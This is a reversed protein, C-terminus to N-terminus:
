INHKHQTNPGQRLGRLANAYMKYIVSKCLHIICMKEHPKDDVFSGGGLGIFDVLFRVTVLRANTGPRSPFFRLYKSIYM